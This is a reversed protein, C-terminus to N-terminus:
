RGHEEEGQVVGCCAILFRAVTEAALLIDDIRVQEVLSHAHGLDGAGFVITPMGGRHFFLRADCSAEWGELGQPGVVSEAIQRFLHVAPHAPDTAFAENHLGATELRHHERAWAGARLNLIDRLEGMIVGITRNPLFAIGGEAVCKGPVTSPWDGGQIRGVNVVVPSPDDPFGPQGKSAARLLAEYEKLIPLLGAMEDVASVGERARGMHVTRGEVELRFWVAGRNASRARLGTPELVVASAPGTLGAGLIAALSGNGGAEEEIVFQAQVDKRLRVGADKLATLALLLTVVQGKADCAGRGFVTGNEVRPTFMGPPGPVVDVHTNIIVSAVGGGGSGKLDVLLNPRGHYGAHGPVVTYDPDEVITEPIPVAEFPLGLGALIGALAEQIRAEAGTTSPFSVLRCLTEQAWGRRTRLSESIKSGLTM